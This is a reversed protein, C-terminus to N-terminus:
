KRAIKDFSSVSTPLRPRRTLALSAPLFARPSPLVPRPAAPEGAVVAVAIVTLVSGGALVSLLLNKLSPSVAARAGTLSPARAAHANRPKAAMERTRARTRPAM